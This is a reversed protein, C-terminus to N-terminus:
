FVTLRPHDIKYSKFLAGSESNFRAVGLEWVPAGNGLIAMLPTDTGSKPERAIRALTRKDLYSPHNKGRPHTHWDGLYTVQGNTDLFIRELKTQQYDGDPLFSFRGHKAKPGPGIINTIVEEGNRGRYGLLMGGTELPFMENALLTM